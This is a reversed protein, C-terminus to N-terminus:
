RVNRRSIRSGAGVPGQDRLGAVPPAAARRARRRCSVLGLAVLVPAAGVPPGLSLGLRVTLEVDHDGGRACAIVDGCSLLDTRRGVEVRADPAGPPAGELPGRRLRVM